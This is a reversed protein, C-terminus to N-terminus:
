LGLEEDTACAWGFEDFLFTGSPSHESLFDGLRQYQKLMGEQLAERRSADRNMVWTYGQVVFESELRTLMGEVARRYPDPEAVPRGPRVEDLFRMLVLSEKLIRGDPLELIPKQM